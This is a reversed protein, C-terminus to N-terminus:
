SGKAVPSYLRKLARNLVAPQAKVCFWRSRPRFGHRRKQAENSLGGHIHRIGHRLSWQIMEDLLLFYLASPRALDDRLGALSALLTRGQVFCTFFGAPRGDVRGRFVVAQSGLERGLAPFLAPTFPLASAVPANRRCVDAFMEFLGTEPGRLPECAVTAGHDAARRRIRRLEKRDRTSLGGLYGDYSDPLDLVMSVTQARAAFGRGRWHHVDPDAVNAVAALLRQERWCLSALVREVMPLAEALATGSRLVFGCHQSSYPAGVVVSLRQLVAERWGRRGFPEVTNAVLALLPGRDDSAMIYRPQYNTRSVEMVRQWRHTMVLQDGALGDWTQEDLDRIANAYQVALRARTM